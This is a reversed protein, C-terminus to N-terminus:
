LARSVVFHPMNLSEILSLDFCIEFVRGVSFGAVHSRISQEGDGYIGKSKGLVLKKQPPAHKKPAAPSCSPGTLVFSHFVALLRKSRREREVKSM